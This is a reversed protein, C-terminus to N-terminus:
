FREGRINTLCSSCFTQVSYSLPRILIHKMTLINYQISGSYTHPGSFEIFTQECVWQFLANRWSVIVEIFTERSVSRHGPSEPYATWASLPSSSRPSPPLWTRTRPRTCSLTCPERTETALFRAKRAILTTSGHCKPASGSGHIQVELDSKM